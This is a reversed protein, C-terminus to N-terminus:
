STKVIHEKENVFEVVLKITKITVFISITSLSLGVHSSLFLRPSKSLCFSFFTIVAQVLHHFNFSVTLWILHKKNLFYVLRFFFFIKFFKCRKASVIKAFLGVM